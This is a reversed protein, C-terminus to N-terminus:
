GSHVPAWGLHGPEPIDKEKYISGKDSHCAVFKGFLRDM